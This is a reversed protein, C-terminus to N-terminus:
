LARKLRRRIEYGSRGRGSPSRPVLNFGIGGLEVLNSEVSDQEGYFRLRKFFVFMNESEHTSTRLHCPAFKLRMGQPKEAVNRRLPVCRKLKELRRLLRKSTAPSLSFPRARPLCALRTEKERARKKKHGSSGLAQQAPQFLLFIFLFPTLHTLGLIFFQVNGSFIM